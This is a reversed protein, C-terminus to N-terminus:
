PAYTEAQAAPETLTKMLYRVEKGPYPTGRAVEGFGLAAHFADSGPNPPVRNVECAVLDHGADRTHAFLESYLARAIGNGRAANAVVIRDVYVFRPYREGFWRFNLSAYDAAQDFAILLATRQANTRALFARSVMTALAQRDLLNTEAAHANNLALVADLDAAAIPRFSM